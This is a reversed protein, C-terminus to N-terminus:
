PSRSAQLAEDLTSLLEQMTFPKPLFRYVGPIEGRPLGSTVIVQVGPDVVRLAGVLAEGTMGPMMLDTVVAAIAGEGATFTRLAEDGNGALLPRYDYARLIRATVQRVQSEDDVVLIQEGHGRPLGGTPSQAPIAAESELAPLWVTFTSGQGPESTAELFGGHSEVIAMSTSLGLGTGKGLEKTTFFPDFIRDMVEPAIGSGTDAVAIQVYRGQHARPHRLVEDAALMRFRASLILRGGNPMADRANVALNLLVQHLQTPDGVVGDLQDGLDVEINVSKLFTSEAIRAVETVLSAVEVRVRRGEIGRAFTLLQRVMDAGRRASSEITQYSERYDPDRGEELLLEVAMMIPTLVNNLDHAIGGALTGISELRQARLLQEELAARVTIDELIVLIGSPEEGDGHLPATSLRVTLRRGDRNLRETVLATQPGRAVTTSIMAHFDDRLEPPVSPLFRGVVEEARWGLTREAAPNWETVQGVLDLGVIAVPASDFIAKLTERSIRLAELAEKAETIDEVMGIIYQPEGTANRVLTSTLLGWMWSGDKRRYRKEMQFRQFDGSIMRDWTARDVLYDAPHSVSEVTLGTLEEVEYGFMEALASNGELIAGSDADVLALGIGAQEFITRFKSESEALVLEADRRATIDRAIGQIAVPRNGDHVLASTVEVWVVRGDRARLRYTEVSGSGGTALVRRLAAWGREVEEADALLSEITLTGLDSRRYGLLMLAAPNADLFQGELDTLYVADLSGEFLARYRQYLRRQEQEATVRQDAEIIASVFWRPAGAADRSLTTVLDAWFTSGDARRYRKTARYVQRTGALLELRAREVEERDDPATVEVIDMADLAQRDHGLLDVLADNVELLRGDLGVVAMGIAADEFATPQGVGASRLPPGRGLLASIAQSFRELISSSSM